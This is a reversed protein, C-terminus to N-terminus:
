VARTYVAENPRGTHTHTHTHILPTLSASAVCRRTYVAKGEAKGHTRIHARPPEWESVKDRTAALGAPGLEGLFAGLFLGKISKARYILDTHDIGGCLEPSLRGARGLRVWKKKGISGGMAEDLRM